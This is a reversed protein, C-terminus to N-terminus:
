VHPGKQKTVIASRIHGESLHFVTRMVQAPRVTQQNQRGMALRAQRDDLIEVHVLAQKLDVVVPRGKKNKKEFLVEAADFFSDLHKRSFFGDRLQIHYHQMPEPPPAAQPDHPYCATITFGAPVQEQLRGVMEQPDIAETLAVVM